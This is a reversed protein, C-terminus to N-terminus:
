RFGAQREQLLRDVRRSTPSARCPRDPRKFDVFEKEPLLMHKSYDSLIMGKDGIFLCGDGWKPIGGQTWIEPKNEGQHWTLKM